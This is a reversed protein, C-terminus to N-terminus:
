LGQFSGELRGGSVHGAESSEPCLVQVSSRVVGQAVVPLLVLDWTHPQSSNGKHLPWTALRAQLNGPLPVLLVGWTLKQPLGPCVTPAKWM